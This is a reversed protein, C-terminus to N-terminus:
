ERRLGNDRKAPCSFPRARNRLALREASCSPRLRARGFARIARGNFPQTPLEWNWQSSGNFGQKHAIAGIRQKAFKVQM